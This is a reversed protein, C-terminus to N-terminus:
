SFFFPSISVNPEVFGRLVEILVLLKSIGILKDFL